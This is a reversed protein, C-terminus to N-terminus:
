KLSPAEEPKPAAGVNEAPLGTNGPIEVGHSYRRPANFIPMLVALPLVEM